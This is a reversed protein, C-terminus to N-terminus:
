LKESYPGGLRCIAYIEEVGTIMVFGVFALPIIAKNFVSRFMFYFRKQFNRALKGRKYLM